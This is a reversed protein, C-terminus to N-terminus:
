TIEKVDFKEFLVFISYDILQIYHYKTCRLLCLLRIIELEPEELKEKM